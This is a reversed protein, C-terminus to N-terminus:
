AASLVDRIVGADVNRGTLLVCVRRRGLNLSGDLLAGVGVAGSGEVVLREGLILDRMAAAISPEAVTVVRCGLARVIDFTASAPEMNGALGDALTPQVDITVIRGTALASTFAPSAAAEAGIAEVRGGASRAAVAAGALLGGGGLPVIVTDLEPWDALVELVVTGAGAIVDLHNYPSIYVAGTADADQRAKVEADDYSAAEVITAGLRAIADRKVAPATAPVYVRAAVGAIEAALAVARGHNGASATVVTAADPQRQGLRLLANLAGRIKFSGTSQVIELKLRVDAGTRESLWASRVLPTHWVHSRIRGAAARIDDATLPLSSGTM